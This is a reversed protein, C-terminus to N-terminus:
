VKELQQLNNLHFLDWIVAAYEMIPHVITLYATAKIASSSSSLNRKLFNLTRNAKAAVNNTHSSWSLKSHLTVGLYSHQDSTSLDLYNLKYNFIISSLPKTFRMITCKSVNFRLHWKTVWEQLQDLDHQLQM